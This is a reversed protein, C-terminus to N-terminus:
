NNSNPYLESPFDEARICTKMAEEPSTGEVNNNTAIVCESFRVPLLSRRCTDLALAGSSESTSTENTPQPTETPAAEPQTQEPTPTTPTTEPEAPELNPTTPEPATPETPAQSIVKESDKSYAKNQADSPQETPKAAYTKTAKEQINTFCSALDLPRRVRFCARLADEAPVSGRDAIRQTCESLTDPEFAEACGISAQEGTINKQQLERLCTDFSSAAAPRIPITAAFLGVPFSVLALWRVSLNLLNKM